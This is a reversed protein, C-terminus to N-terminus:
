SLLDGSSLVAVVHIVYVLVAPSEKEEKIKELLHFM